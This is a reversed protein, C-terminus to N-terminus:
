IVTEYLLSGYSFHIPREGVVELHESTPERMGSM